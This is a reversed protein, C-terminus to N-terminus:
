NRTAGSLFSRSHSRSRASEDRKVISANVCVSKKGTLDVDQPNKNQLPHRIDTISKSGPIDYM